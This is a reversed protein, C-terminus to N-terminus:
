NQTLLDTVIEDFEVKFKEYQSTAPGAFGTYIKQIQNNGNLFLLTPYSKIKKLIGLTESAETKDYYGGYLVEYPVNKKEKYRKIAAVSKAKDRYREFAIAIIDIQKGPHSGLYEILFNTEDICNPCWTGMIKIIKPKGKYLEDNPSVMEGETNPFSFDVIEKGEKAQSFEYADVMSSEESRVGSWNTKYHTGSLFRGLIHGSELINGDFYFAHAGDFCSLFLEDGSVIGELYRYDGTETRFTGNVVNGEQKFEGVAPYATETEIEMKVNWNGTIDHNADAINKFRQSNGHYAIFPIKYNERYHVHFNGQIINEKHEAEIHTDFVTFDIRVSDKGTKRDQTFSIDTIPIREPGNHIIMVVKDNEDYEIDFNFPLELDNKFSNPDDELILTGRWIGPPLKSFPHTVEICNSFIISSCFVLFCIQKM